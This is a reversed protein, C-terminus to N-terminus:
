GGPGAADRAYAAYLALPLMALILLLGWGMVSRLFDNFFYGAEDPRKRQALV